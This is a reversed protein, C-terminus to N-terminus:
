LPTCRVVKEMLRSKGCVMTSSDVSVSMSYKQPTTGQDYLGLPKPFDKLEQDGGGAVEGKGRDREV